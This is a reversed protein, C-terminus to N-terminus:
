KKLRMMANVVAGILPRTTLDLQGVYAHFQAGFGQKYRHLGYKPNEEVPYGEVGRFDFWHRGTEIAHLQM